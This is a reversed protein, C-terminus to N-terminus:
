DQAALQAFVAEMAEVRAIYAHAEHDGCRQGPLLRFRRRVYADGAGGGCLHILAAVRREQARTAGDVGNRALALTVEHDLYASTLEVAHSPIVRFYLGNLWCSHWDNWAGAAVVAHDHICYRKAEAFTGDTIQYMGVASSAPRYLDFLRSTLSWRWYTRAVPNGSGEVQALAALLEPSMIATSHARFIPGYERWTVAPTKYLTGSVPFFLETPKRAVQYIWNLALALGLIVVTSVLLKMLWPARRFTRWWRRRVRAGPLLRALRWRRRRTGRSKREPNRRNRRSTPGSM